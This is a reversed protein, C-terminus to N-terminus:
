KHPLAACPWTGFRFCIYHECRIPSREWLINSSTCLQQQQNLTGKMKGALEYQKRPEDSRVQLATFLGGRGWRGSDDVCFCNYFFSQHPVERRKIVRSIVVLPFPHRALVTSSSPMARLPTLTLSMGWFTTSPWTTLTQPACAAMMERRKRQNKKVTWPRCAGHDTAAHSGGHWGALHPFVARALTLLQGLWTLLSM